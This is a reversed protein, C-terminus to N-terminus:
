GKESPRGRPHCSRCVLRGNNVETKGGDRWPVPYHDYEAEDPFVQEGGIACKGDQRKFIEAKQQDNFTRNKDLRTGLSKGECVDERWWRYYEELVAGRVRKGSPKNSWEQERAERVREAFQEVLRRDVKVQPNRMLDQIHMMVVTVDLRTFKKRDKKQNNDRGQQALDFVGGVTQLVEVFRKATEGNEDFDTRQRYLDDSENASVSPWAYPDNARELFIKLLQACTQRDVVHPDRQEEDQNGQGRKDIAGFLKLRPPKNLKGALKEIFPGLNGPWADRIQQRTLATGSQLRIFLDRIEDPHADPAIEFVTM